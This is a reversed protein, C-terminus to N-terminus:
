AGVLRGAARAAGRLYKFRAIMWAWQIPSLPVLRRNIFLVDGYSRFSFCVADFGLDAMRAIARRIDPLQGPNIFDHFEVTMQAVRTFLDAPADLLVAVEEGEIDMKVLDIRGSELALAEGFTVAEVEVTTAAIDAFHMSSCKQANVHFRHHGAHAALAKAIVRVNAPLALRDHWTPDPEFGIVTRCRPAVVRSFGGDNVGFDFVLGDPRILEPLFSHSWYVEVNM